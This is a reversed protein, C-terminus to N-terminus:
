TASDKQFKIAARKKDVVNNLIFFLMLGGALARIDV